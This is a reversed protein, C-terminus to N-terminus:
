IDKRFWDKELSFEKSIYICFLTKPDQLVLTHDHILVLYILVMNQCFEKRLVFILKEL